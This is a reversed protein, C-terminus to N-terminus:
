YSERQKENNISSVNSTNISLIYYFLIILNMSINEVQEPSEVKEKILFYVNKIEKLDILDIYLM